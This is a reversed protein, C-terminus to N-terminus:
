HYSLLSQIQMGLNSDQNGLWRGALHDGTKKNAPRREEPRRVLPRDGPSDPQEETPSAGCDAVIRSCPRGWFRFGGQSRGDAGHSTHSAALQGAEEGHWYHWWSPAYAGGLCTTAPSGVCSAMCATAAWLGLRVLKAVSSPDLAVSRRLWPM